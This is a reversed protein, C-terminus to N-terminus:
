TPASQSTLQGTWPAAASPRWEAPVLPAEPSSSGSPPGLGGAARHAHRRGPGVPRPPEDRSILLPAHVVLWLWSRAAGGLNRGAGDARHRRYLAPGSRGYARGQRFVPGSAPGTGSPWWPTSRRRRLPLGRAPAALVPRHGRRDHLEEAFGRGGRLRERRVALNAGLGAPLFGLQLMSAPEPAIRSATSPGSTSSGPSWTPRRSHAAVCAALWGPQVVDDADCFALQDGDAARVGANRAAGPAVPGPPTSWRVADSPARGLAAGVAPQRRHVRQRRRGVGVATM